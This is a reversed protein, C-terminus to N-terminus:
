SALQDLNPTIVQENGYCGLMDHAHQGSFIFVLNPKVPEGSRSFSSIGLSFALIMLLMLYTLKKM